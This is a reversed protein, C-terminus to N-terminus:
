KARDATTLLYNKMNKELNQKKIAEVMKEKMLSNTLKKNEEAGNEHTSM